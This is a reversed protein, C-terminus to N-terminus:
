ETELPVACTPTVPQVLRSLAIAQRDEIVDDRRVVDVQQNAIGLTTAYRFAHLQDRSAYGLFVVVAFPSSAREPLIAIKRRGHGSVPVEGQAHDIDVEVHNPSAGDAM